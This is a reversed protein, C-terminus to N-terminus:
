FSQQHYDLLLFIAIRDGLTKNKKQKKKLGQKFVQVTREALGNSSPHYPASTVHTVENMQLCEQFETSTFATGNDTVVTKPLRFQAFTARLQQVTTASALPCAEIWKSADTLIRSELPGAFDLHLDTTLQGHGPHWQHLKHIRDVQQYEPCMKVSDEIAQDM